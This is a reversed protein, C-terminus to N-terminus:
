GQQLRNTMFAAHNRVSSFHARGKPPSLHRSIGRRVVLRLIVNITIIPMLSVFDM